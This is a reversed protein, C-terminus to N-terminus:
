TGPHLKAVHNTQSGRMKFSKISSIVWWSCGWESAKLAIDEDKVIANPDDGKTGVLCFLPLKEPRNCSMDVNIVQQRWYDVRKFSEMNTVDFVIVVFANMRLYPKVISFYRESGNTDWVFLNSRLRNASFADLFIDLQKSYFGIGVTTQKPANEYNSEPLKECLRQILSTKGCSYDGIVVTKIQYDM